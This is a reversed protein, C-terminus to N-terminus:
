LVKPKLLRRYLISMDATKSTQAVQRVSFFGCVMIKYNICDEQVAYSCPIYHFHECLQANNWYNIAQCPSPCQQSCAIACEGRSGVATLTKNPPSMGCLFEDFQSKVWRFERFESSWCFNAVLMFYFAGFVLQLSM